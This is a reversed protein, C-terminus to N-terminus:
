RGKDKGPPKGTWLIAAVQDHHMGPQKGTLLIVAVSTM